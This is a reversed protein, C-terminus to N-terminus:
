PQVKKVLFPGLHGRDVSFDAVKKLITGKAFAVCLKSKM